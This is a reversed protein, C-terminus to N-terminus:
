HTCIIVFVTEEVVIVLNCQVKWSEWAGQNSDWHFVKDNTPGSTRSNNMIDEEEEEVSAVNEDEIIEEGTVRTMWMERLETKVAM